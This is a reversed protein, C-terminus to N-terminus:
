QQVDASEGEPKLSATQQKLLLLENEKQAVTLKTEFLEKQTTGLTTSLESNTRALNGAQQSITFWLWGLGGVLIMSIGIMWFMSTRWFTVKQENASNKEHVVALEEVVKKHTEVFSSIQPTLETKLSALLATLEDAGGRYPKLGKELTEKLTDETHSRGSEGATESVVHGEEPTLFPGRKKCYDLVDSRKLYAVPRGEVKAYRKEWSFEKCKNRTQRDGLELMKAAEPITLWEPNGIVSSDYHMSIENNVTVFESNQDSM